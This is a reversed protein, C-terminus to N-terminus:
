SVPRPARRRRGEDRILHGVQGQLIQENAEEQGRVVVVCVWFLFDVGVDVDNVNWELFVVILSVREEGAQRPRGGRAAHSLPDNFAAAVAEAIAKRTATGLDKYARGDPLTAGIVRSITALYLRQSADGKEPVGLLQQLLSQAESGRNRAKVYQTALQKIEKKRVVFADLEFGMNQAMQKRVDTLSIAALDKGELATTLAARLAETSISQATQAGQVNAFDAM